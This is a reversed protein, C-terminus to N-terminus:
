CFWYCFCRVDDYASAGHPPPGPPIPTRVPTISIPREPVDAETASGSIGVDQESCYYNGMVDVATEYLMDHHIKPDALKLPTLPKDTVTQSSGHTAQKLWAPPVLVHDIYAKICRFHSTWIACREKNERFHWCDENEACTKAEKLAAYLAYSSLVNVGLVHLTAVAAKMVSTLGKDM